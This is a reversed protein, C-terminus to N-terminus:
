GGQGTLFRTVWLLLMDLLWFFVGMILAFVVVAVATQMTEQRTPWVVKRLEIRSTQIFRWLERGRVTTLFVTIAIVLSAVVGVARLLVSTDPYYYYAGIGAVILAGSVVSKILDLVVSGTTETRANM